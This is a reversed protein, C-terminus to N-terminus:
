APNGIWQKEAAPLTNTSYQVSLQSIHCLDAAVRGRRARVLMCPQGISPRLSHILKSLPEVMLMAAWGAAPTACSCHACLTRHFGSVAEIRCLSTSAQLRSGKDKLEASKWCYCQWGEGALVWSSMAVHCVKLLVGLQETRIM